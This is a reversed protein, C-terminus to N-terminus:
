LNNYRDFYCSLRTKIGNEGGEIQIRSIKKNQIDEFNLIDNLDEGNYGLYEVFKQRYGRVGFNLRYELSKSPNELWQRDFAIHKHRIINRATVLSDTQNFTNYTGETNAMHIHSIAKTYDWFSGCSLINGNDRSLTVTKPNSPVTFRVTNVNAVYPYTGYQKLCLNTVAEWLSSHEKIYIYNSTATLNEFYVNPIAIYNSMLNVLSVNTLVGPTVENQGMMSTHSRSTIKLTKFGSKEETQLTDVIGKHIFNGNIYLEADFVEGIPLDLMFTGSFSSYPTYREKEYKLSLCHTFEKKTSAGVELLKLSISDTQLLGKGPPPAM